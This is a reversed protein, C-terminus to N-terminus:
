DARLSHAERDELSPLIIFCFIGIIFLYLSLIAGFYIVGISDIFFGFLFYGPIGGGVCIINYVSFVRALYASEVNTQLFSVVFINLIGQSIGGIVLLLQLFPLPLQLAFGCIALSFAFLSLLFGYKKNLKRYLIPSILSGLIMGIMTPTTFLFISEAGKHFIQKLYSILYIDIAAGVMWGLFFILFLRSFTKNSKIYSLGERISAIFAHKKRNVTHQKATYQIFFVSIFSGCYIVAVLMLIQVTTLNYQYLLAAISYSIIKATMNVIRFYSNANPIKEKQVIQPILTSSSTTFFINVLTILFIFGYLLFLSHIPVSLLLYLICILIIRTGDTSLLINKLPKQEIYAGIPLGFLLVPLASFVFYFSTEIGNSGFQQLLSLLCVFLIADGFASFISGLFLLCFNKNKIM